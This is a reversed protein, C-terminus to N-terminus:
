AVRGKSWSDMQILSMSDFYFDPAHRMNELLQPIAWGEGAYMDAVLKKQQDTDRRSYERPPSTFYFMAKGENNHQPPYIGAVKGPMNYVLFQRDINLHNITTFIALYCGLHRIFRSEDGFVLTRVNSHLGDAGVVLDFTRPKSREFTVLIGEESETM